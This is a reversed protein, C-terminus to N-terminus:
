VRGASAALAPGRWLGLGVTLLESAAAPDGAQLAQQGDRVRAAFLSADLDEDSLSRLYGGNVTQVPTEGAVSLPELTQRLRHVAMQLRKRSSLQPEGWLADILLDSSVARGSLLVLFALLAVQRPGVDLRRGGAWVEVPGLIRVSEV